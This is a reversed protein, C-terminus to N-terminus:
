LWFTGGGPRNVPWALFIHVGPALSRRPVPRCQMAVNSRTWFSAVRLRLNNIQFVYDGSAAFNYDNRLVGRRNPVQAVNLWAM